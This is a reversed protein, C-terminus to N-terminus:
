VTINSGEKKASVLFGEMTPEDASSVLGTLAAAPAQAQITHPFALAFVVGIAALLRHGMPKRGVIKKSQRWCLSRQDPLLSWFVCISWSQGRHPAAAVHADFSGVMRM